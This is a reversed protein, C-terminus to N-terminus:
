EYLLEIEIRYFCMTLILLILSAETNLTDSIYSLCIIFVSSNVLTHVHCLFNFSITIRANNRFLLSPILTWFLNFILNFATIFYRLCMNSNLGYSIVVTHTALSVSIKVTNPILFISQM